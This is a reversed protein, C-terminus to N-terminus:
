GWFVFFRSLRWAAAVETFLSAGIRRKQPTHYYLYMYLVRPTTHFTCWDPDRTSAVGVDSSPGTFTIILLTTATHTRASCCNERHNLNKRACRLKGVALENLTKTKTSQSERLLFDRVVEFYTAARADKKAGNTILQETEKVGWMRTQFTSSRIEEAKRQNSYTRKELNRKSFSDDKIKADKSPLSTHFIHVKWPAAAGPGIRFVRVLHLTVTVTM